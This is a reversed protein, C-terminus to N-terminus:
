YEYFHKREFTEFCTKMWNKLYGMKLKSLVDPNSTHMAKRVRQGPKNVFLDKVKMNKVVKEIDKTWDPLAHVGSPRFVKTVRDYNKAIEDTAQASKSVRKMTKATFKGRYTKAETKFILNQHEMDQDNPFNTNNRGQHNVTREWTFHFADRKSLLISIQCQTELMAHAYKPCNSIKYILTLFKHVLMIRQGDGMSIADNHELRLLCLTISVCTYNYVPDQPMDGGYEEQLLQHGHEKIEHNILATKKSKFKRGCYQCTLNLSRPADAEIDFFKLRFYEDVFQEAHDRVYNYNIDNEPKNKSLNGDKSQMGFYALGGCIIYVITYKDLFDSSGYYDHFPEDSINTNEFQSMSNFLTGVDVANDRSYLHQWIARMMEGQNHFEATRPLLGKLQKSPTRGNRKAMQAVKSREFTLYDGEFATKVLKRSETEDESHGPVAKHAEQMIDLMEDNKSECKNIVGMSIRETKTKTYRMYNHHKEPVECAEFAKIYKIWTQAVHAAVSKSLTAFDEESPIVTSFPATQIERQSHFAELDNAPVRNKYAAMQFMHADQDGHGIRHHRVHTRMDVNDGVIYYGPHMQLRLCQLEVELAAKTLVSSTVSGPETEGELQHIDELLKLEHQREDWVKKQWAELQTDANDAIENAKELTSQYSMCIKTANLRSFSSKKAGGKLLIISNIYALASMERNHVSILTCAASIIAPLEKKLKGKDDEYISELVRLLTPTRTHLEENLKSWSFSKLSAEDKLRLVSTDSSKTTCLDHLEKKIVAAQAEQFEAMTKPCNMVAKGVSSGRALARALTAEEDM